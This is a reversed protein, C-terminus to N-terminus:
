IAQYKNALEEVEEMTDYLGCVNSGLIRYKKNVIFFDVGGIRIQYDMIMRYGYGNEDCWEILENKNFDKREKRTMM